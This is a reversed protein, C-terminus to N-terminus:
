ACGGDRTWISLFIVNRRWRWRRGPTQNVAKPETVLDGDAAGRNCVVLLCVSREPHSKISNKATDTPTVLIERADFVDGCQTYPDTVAPEYGPNKKPPPPTLNAMKEWSNVTKQSEFISRSLVWTKIASFHIWLIKQTFM